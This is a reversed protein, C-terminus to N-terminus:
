PSYVISAVAWALFVVALLECLVATLLLAVKLGNAARAAAITKVQAQAVRLQGIDAPAAWYSAAVLGSLGRATPEKYRLPINTALGFGGAMVLAAVALVVPLRVPGPLRFRTATNLATLLGFLITALTGSTTVVTLGRSELSAKRSREEALQDAILEGYAAGANASDSGSV